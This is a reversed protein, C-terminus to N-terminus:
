LKEEPYSGDGASREEGRGSRKESSKQSPPHKKMFKSTKVAYAPLNRMLVLQNDKFFDKGNLMLKDIFQGNVHIRGQENIEAGPLQEILADLMSGQDLNFADANFSVTDGKNVFQVISATVTVEQLNHTKEFRTLKRIPIDGLDLAPKDM